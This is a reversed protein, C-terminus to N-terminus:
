AYTDKKSVPKKPIGEDMSGSRYGHLDLTIYSFGLAKLNRILDDGATLVKPMDERMVEIRAITGHMRVRSQRIGLGALYEEAEEIMHLNKETIAEGYPIRSSLCAASPKDWFSCGRERAIKRIDEKSIGAEIFPHIIGEESSAAIGPRHEGTDSVNMGDAIASFGLEKQKRKLVQASIKKCHYCRQVPNKTFEPDSLHAVSIVELPLDYERAIRRAEDVASRPVVPSDLFICASADGLIDHALVALLASDVGGSYAILLSGRAALNERLREHKARLTTLRPEKEM